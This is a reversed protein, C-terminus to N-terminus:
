QQQTVDDGLLLDDTVIQKSHNDDNNGNGNCGIKGEGPQVKTIEKLVPVPGSDSTIKERKDNINNNIQRNMENKGSNAPYLRIPPENPTSDESMFAALHKSKFSGVLTPTLLSLALMVAGTAFTCLGFMKWRRMPDKLIEALKEPPVYFSGDEDQYIAIRAISEEVGEHPWTYGVIIAVAGGILLILGLVTLMRCLWLGTRQAPPPPLLYWAGASEIDEVAPSQYFQHLYSRIGFGPAPTTVGDLLATPKSNGNDITNDKKSTSGHGFITM